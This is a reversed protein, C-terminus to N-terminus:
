RSVTCFRALGEDCVYASLPHTDVIVVYVRLDFKLGDVLLPKHIYRQVVMENSLLSPLESLDRFLMISNGESSAVPKAIYIAGEERHKRHYDAFAEQDQPFTFCGPIISFV